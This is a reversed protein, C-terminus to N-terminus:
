EQKFYGEIKIVEEAESFYNLEGEKLTVANHFEYSSDEVEEIVMFLTDDFQFVEGKKLESFLIKNLETKKIKM